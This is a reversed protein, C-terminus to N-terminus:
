SQMRRLEAALLWTCLDEVLVSIGAGEENVAGEERPLHDVNETGRQSHHNARSEKESKEM